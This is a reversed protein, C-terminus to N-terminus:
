LQRWWTYDYGLEVGDPFAADVARKVGSLDMQDTPNEYDHGGIWGGSRVAIKWMAIDAEVGRFSHDADLFVLDVSCPPIKLAADLSDM